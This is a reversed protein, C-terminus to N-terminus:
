IRYKGMGLVTEHTFEHIPNKINKTSADVAM